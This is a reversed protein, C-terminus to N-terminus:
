SNIQRRKILKSRKIKFNRLFEILRLNEPQLSTVRLNKKTHMSKVKLVKLMSLQKDPKKKNGRSMQLEKQRKYNEKKM